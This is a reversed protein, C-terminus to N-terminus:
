ASTPVSLSLLWALPSLDSTAQQGSCRWAQLFRCSVADAARDPDGNRLLELRFAVPATRDYFRLFAEQDASAAQALLSGLRPPHVEDGSRM